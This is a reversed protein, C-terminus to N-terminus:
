HVVITVEFMILQIPAGFAVYTVSVTDGSLEPYFMIGEDGDVKISEKLVGISATVIVYKAYYKIGSEDVVEVPSGQLTSNVKTVPSNLKLTVASITNNWWTNNM